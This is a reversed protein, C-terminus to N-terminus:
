PADAQIPWAFSCYGLHKGPQYKRLDSFDLDQTILFRAANQVAQWANDDPQGSLGEHQVTDTDHGAAFLREALRAPMNEDLKIKV